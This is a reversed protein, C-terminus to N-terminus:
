WRGSAGGGGFGGGGGGFGGGGFGGQGFGGGGMVGRGGGVLTLMFAMFGVVGAILIPAVILWALMATVFGIVIAAPLRGLFKRLVGGVGMVLMFAIFLLSELNNIGGSVASSERPPPLSEGEIVKLLQEIGTAIGAYYDGRKFHPTITESIIQKAVADPLVGELGYGVEIRLTRDDKAILLLVGDDIGKRGLKWADVVRIGFQEITEPQTTPILLVAIQAGKKEEFQALRTELQQKQVADLTSTLDTVRASLPPVEVEAHALGSVSLWVLTLLLAPAWARIM